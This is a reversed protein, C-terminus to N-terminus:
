CYLVSIFLLFYLVISFFLSVLLQDKLIISIILDRAPCIKFVSSFISSIVCIVSLFFSLFPIVISGTCQFHCFLIQCLNKGIIESDLHLLCNVSLFLNEIKDWANNM